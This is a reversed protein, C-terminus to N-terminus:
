FRIRLKMGQGTFYFNTKLRSTFKRNYVDLASNAHRYFAKNVPISGLILAIGGVALGWEPDGGFIASGLPIGVLLGGTFGMVGVASYNKKALKFEEFALPTDQLINLVQKPSITLTDMEFKVGGFTKVMTIESAKQALAINVICSFAFTLIIKIAPISFNM